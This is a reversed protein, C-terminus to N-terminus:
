PAQMTPRGGCSGQSGPARHIATPGAAIARSARTAPAQGASRIERLTRDQHAM